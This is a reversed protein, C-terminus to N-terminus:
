AQLEFWCRKGNPTEDVGWVTAAADVIHLGRGGPVAPSDGRSRPAPETTSEDDVEVRWRDENSLWASVHVAGSTHQVANTVLESAVLLVDDPAQTSCDTALAALADRVQRSALPSRDPDLRLQAPMMFAAKRTGRAQVGDAGSRDVNSSREWEEVQEIFRAPQGVQNCTEFTGNGKELEDHGLKLSQYGATDMFTTDALDFVVPLNQESQAACAAM